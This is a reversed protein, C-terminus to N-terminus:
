HGYAKGPGMGKPAFGCCILGRQLWHIRGELRESPNGAAGGTSQQGRGHSGGGHAPKYNLKMVLATAPPAGVALLNAKPWAATESGELSIVNGAVPGLVIIGSAARWFRARPLFPM